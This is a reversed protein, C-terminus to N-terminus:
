GQIMYVEGAVYRIEYHREGDVYKRGELYRLRWRLRRLAYEVNGGAMGDDYKPCYAWVLGDKGERGTLICRLRKGGKCEIYHASSILPTFLYNEDGGRKRRNGHPPVFRVERGVNRRWWESRIVRDAWELTEALSRFDQVRVEWEALYVRKKQFDRPRAM